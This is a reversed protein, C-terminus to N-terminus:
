DFQQRFTDFASRLAELDERLSRVEDELEAIRGRGGGGGGAHQSETMEEVAVEGGLLHVHRTEKTGPARALTRTLAPYKEALHELVADVAAIDDFRHLRECRLRLEGATQAGRLMLTALVAQEPPPLSHRLRVLHEYKAVRASPQDRKSVLRRASLRDIAAQVEAESLSMVPERATLQNSGTLIANISMPYADPTVFAKEILVGLVRIEVADLDFGAEASSEASSGAAPTPAQM